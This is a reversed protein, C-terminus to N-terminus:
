GSSLLQRLAEAEAAVHQTPLYRECVREQASRGLTGALTADDLLRAIATGFAASDTPDDVLLGHREHDIQDQIGGVRTSVVPRAKWMAETVTLGFGEALSKQVVVDARRQLANVWRANTTPDDMPLEALHVRRRRARPLDAWRQRTEALVQEGEPDDAVGNAQPGALCLHVTADDPGHETFAEVVGGPDKLRDWRSVQVVLRAAASLPEEQTMVVPGEGDLLGSAWLIEDVAAADLGCNKPAAVDICPPIIVTRPETLEPWRHAPRSFICLDAQEVDALLFRRAARARDDDRDAGIHCRWVVRAGRSKLLPILGATQPDHLVVIDGNAVEHGIADAEAQLSADYTARESAGLDGAAGNAGGHLWNHIRKTVDLLDDAVDLVLWGVPVGAGACYPLLSSLLEAVGGGKATSNVHWLRRGDVKRHLRELADDLQGQGTPGLSALVSETSRAAVPVSHM